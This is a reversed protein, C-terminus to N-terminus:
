GGSLDNYVFHVTAQGGAPANIKIFKFATAGTYTVEANESTYTTYSGNFLYAVVFSGCIVGSITIISDTNGNINVCTIEGSETLTSYAYAIPAASSNNGTIMVTCTEVSGGSGGSAKGQLEQILSALKTNNNSLQTKNSM